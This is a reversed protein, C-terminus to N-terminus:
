TRAAEFDAWVQELKEIDFGPARAPGLVIAESEIVTEIASKLTGIVEDPIVISGHRDAHILDGEAVRMGLITVPTGIEVVHVYGHSPGISGAL